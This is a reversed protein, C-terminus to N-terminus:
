FGMMKAFSEARGLAKDLAAMTKSLDASEDQMWVHLTKIYIASLAGVKIAGKLGSTDVSCAELMLSMSKAIHPLGIVLQKPDCKYSELIAILAERDKNILELRDMLIDFLRDRISENIDNANDEKIDEQAREDLLSSDITRAYLMLIDSKDSIIHVLFSFNIKAKQAIDLLSIEAYDEELALLFAAHLIQGHLDELDPSKSPKKRKKSSKAKDM